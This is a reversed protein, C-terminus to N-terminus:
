LVFFREFLHVQEPHAKMIAHLHDLYIAAARQMAASREDRSAAAVTLPPHCLLRYHRPGLRVSFAVLLPAGTTLSLAFPAAAVAVTRGLFPMRLVRAEGFTRDAALSVVGGERLVKVADLIDFAQGRGEPVTLVQVGARRLDGDVGARARGDAQGGMLLTLSEHRRALLRAGIEWRGLHSMAIVVGRGGARAQALHEEGVEEFRIDSRREVELRESFVRAFDQYQRWTWELAARRPADPFLTRFLEVSAARRKGRVLFYGAAVVAGVLRVPWLGLARSLGALARYFLM